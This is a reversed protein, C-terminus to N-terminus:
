CFRVGYLSGFFGSWKPNQLVKSPEDDILLTQDEMGYLLGCCVCYMCKLDNIFYYSRPIIQCSTKLCQEHGWIFVFEVFKKLMLMPFAELVDELKMCSWIAIYFKNFVNSFFHEIGDRVEVKSKDINKGFM